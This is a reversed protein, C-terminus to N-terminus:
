GKGSYFCNQKAAERPCCSTAKQSQWFHSRHHLYRVSLEHSVDLCLSNEFTLTTTKMRCWFMYM